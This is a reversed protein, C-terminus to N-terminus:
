FSVDWQTADSGATVGDGSQVAFRVPYEGSARARIESLMAQVLRGHERQLEFGDAQGRTDGYAIFSFKTVGATSEESPLSVTGPELARATPLIQFGALTPYGLALMASVFASCGIGLPRM